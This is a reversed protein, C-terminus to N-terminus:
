LTCIKNLIVKIFSYCVHLIGNHSASNVWNVTCLSIKKPQQPFHFKKGLENEKRAKQSLHFKLLEQIAPYSRKRSLWPFPSLLAQKTLRYGLADMKLKPNKLLQESFCGRNQGSQIPRRKTFLHECVCSWWWKWWRDDGTMMKSFDWWKNWGRLSLFNSSM